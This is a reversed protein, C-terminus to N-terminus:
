RLSGWPSIAADLGSVGGGPGDLQAALFRGVGEALDRGNVVVVQLPGGGGAGGEAEGAAEAPEGASARAGAGAVVEAVGRRRGAAREVPVASM